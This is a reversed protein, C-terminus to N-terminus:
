GDWEPLTEFEDETMERIEYTLLAADEDDSLMELAGEHGADTDPVILHMTWSPHKYARMRIATM